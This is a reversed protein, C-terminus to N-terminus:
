EDHLASHIRRELEDPKRIRITADRPMDVIGSERLECLKRTITVRSAGIKEALQQHTIAIERSGDARAPTAAALHILANYLRMAVSKRILGDILAQSESTRRTFRAILGVVASPEAATVRALADGTLILVRSATLAEAVIPARASGSDRFRFFVGDTGVTFLAVVREGGVRTSLRIDGAEMLCLATDDTDQTPLVEGTALEHVLARVGLAAATARIRSVASGPATGSALTSAVGDRAREYGEAVAMAITTRIEALAVIADHSPFNGDNAELIALEITNTAAVARNVSETLSVGRAAQSTGTTRADTVLAEFDWTEAARILTDWYQTHLALIEPRPETAFKQRSYEVARATYTDTSKRLLAALEASM